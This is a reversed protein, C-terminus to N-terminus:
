KGEGGANGKVNGSGPGAGLSDKIEVKGNPRVKLHGDTVVTEGGQLGKAIVAEEGTSREMVVPAVEATMDPKIVFVFQGQDGNQVARLPAVVAGSQITLRLSVNVFQGPWLSRDNNAFEAKLKIMGTAQDIANDVFVLKGNTIEMPFDKGPIVRVSVTGAALYKRIAALQKEPVSFRIYAPSIQNLTTLSTDNARVISGLNVGYAGTRGAFPAKVSCYSLNLRADEVEARDAKVNANYAAADTLYKDAESKSVAGKTLLFAYRKAEEENFQSQAISKALRAEVQHLKERFPAPDITFLLQGTRVDEGERFHTRLLQGTVRSYVNISKYAEVTGIAAIELPMDKKVVKAALVTAPPFVPPPTEKGCGGTILSAAAVLSLLLSGSILCRLWSRWSGNRRRRGGHGTALIIKDFM